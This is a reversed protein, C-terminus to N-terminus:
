CRDFDALRALATKVDGAVLAARAATLIDVHRALFPVGEGTGPAQPVLRAALAPVLEDLGRGDLACTRIGPYRVEDVAPPLDCKNFVRVAEPWQRALAEDDASWSQGADFVLVVLDAAALRKRALEIGAAELPGGGARIGATDALEIPWGEVAAAAAVVDRTTGPLPHVIAREYGVLANTLSSKGVNPRGALVVTWPEVLHLGVAAWGVLSDIKEVAAPTDGRALIRGIEDLAGRLAGEQQDLLIMAARETPACALAIRAEAAIPDAEAGRTWEQWSIEECGREVLSAVIARAATHGGHCHIEVADAARRSVVVEEGADDSQWRGLLVRGVPQEALLRRGAPRFMGGVVDVADEGEVRVSAVAGRGASTLLVVSTRRQSTVKAGKERGV